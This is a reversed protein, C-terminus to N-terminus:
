TLHGCHPSAPKGGEHRRIVDGAALAVSIM